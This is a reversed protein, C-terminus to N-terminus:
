KAAQAIVGLAEQEVLLVRHSLVDYISLMRGEVVSSSPLNRAARFLNTNGKAAVCLTGSPKTFLKTVIGAMTKTKHDPLTLNDIVKIEGEVFKKSLASRLAARRMKVNLKKTYDRDNRPGFTIGGGVWIPSRSSGHRARGTHKQRWPKKGGGSVESRDKTHAIPQRRNGLQAVLAQHVLDPNWKTDFLGRPAEAKGSVKGDQNYVDITM